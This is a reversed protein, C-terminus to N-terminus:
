RLVGFLVATALVGTLTPWHSLKSPLFAVSGIPMLMAAIINRV